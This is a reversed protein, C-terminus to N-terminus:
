RIGIEVLEDIPQCVADCREVLPRDALRLAEGVDGTQRRVVLDCRLPVYAKGGDHSRGSLRSDAAEQVLAKVLRSVHFIAQAVVDTSDPVSGKSFPTNGHRMM